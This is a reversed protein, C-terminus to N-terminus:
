FIELIIAGEYLTAPRKKSFIDSLIQRLEVESSYDHAMEHITLVFQTASLESEVLVRIMGVARWRLDDSDSHWKM